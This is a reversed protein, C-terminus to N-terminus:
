TGLNADAFHNRHIVTCFCVKCDVNSDCLLILVIKTMRERNRKQCIGQKTDDTSYNFMAENIFSSHVMLTANVFDNTTAATNRTSAAISEGASTAAYSATAGASAAAAAGVGAGFISVPSVAHIITAVAITMSM